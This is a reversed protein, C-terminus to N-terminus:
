AMVVLTDALYHSCESEKQDIKVLSSAFLMIKLVNFFIRKLGFGPTLKMLTKRSRALIEFGFALKTTKQV